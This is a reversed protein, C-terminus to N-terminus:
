FLSYVTFSGSAITSSILRIKFMTASTTPSQGVFTTFYPIGSSLAYAQGFLTAPNTTNLDMLYVAGSFVQTLGIYNSTILLGTTISQNGWANSNYAAFETGSLYGSTAFVGTSPATEIILSTGASNSFISEYVILVKTVSRPPTIVFSSTNNAKEKFIVNGTMNNLIM